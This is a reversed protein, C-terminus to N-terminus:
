CQHWIVPSIPVSKLNPQGGFVLGDQYFLVQLNAYFINHSYWIVSHMKHMCSDEPMTKYKGENGSFM